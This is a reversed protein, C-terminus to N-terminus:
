AAASALHRRAEDWAVPLDTGPVTWCAFTSKQMHPRINQVSASHPQAGSFRDLAEQSEWASLTWFTKQWLQADLTYGMLGDASALQKRIGLTARLFAPIHRHSALPLRSAMVVYQQDPRPDSIRTWPLAPM